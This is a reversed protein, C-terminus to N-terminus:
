IKKSYYFIDIGKVKTEEIILSSGIQKINEFFFVKSGSQNERLWPKSFSMGLHSM